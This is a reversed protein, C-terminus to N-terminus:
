QLQRDGCIIFYIYENKESIKVNKYVNIILIKSM